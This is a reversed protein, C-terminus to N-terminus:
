ARHCKTLYIFTLSKILINGSFFIRARIPHNLTLVRHTNEVFWLSIPIKYKIKPPKAPNIPVNIETNIRRSNDCVPETKKDPLQCTYLTRTVACAKIIIKKKTIGTSIPPKPLKNTGTMIPAGSIANGLSLLILKQNSGGENNNSIDDANTSNPAPVPQVTYGGRLPTLECEPGDTSKAIKLKCRAPTDENNPAILKKLVM